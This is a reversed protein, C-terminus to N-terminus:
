PLNLKEADLTELEDSIKELFRHELRRDGSEPNKGKYLRRIADSSFWECPAIKYPRHLNLGNDGDAPPVIAVPVYYCNLKKRRDLEMALLTMTQPEIHERGQLQEITDFVTAKRTASPAIMIIDGNEVFETCANLYIKNFERALDDVIEVRNDRLRKAMKNRTAPTITPTIYLGFKEMRYALPALEEYWVINVPFLYRRDPYETLCIGILRFIEGLTPHNFGFVLSNRPRPFMGVIEAPASRSLVKAMSIRLNKNYNGIRARALREAQKLSKQCAKGVDDMEDKMDHLGLTDLLSYRGARLDIITDITSQGKIRKISTKHEEKM